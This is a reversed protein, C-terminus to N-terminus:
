FWKQNLAYGGDNDWGSTDGNRGRFVYGMKVHVAANVPSVPRVAVKGDESKGEIGFGDPFLRRSLNYVLEFGMDMGCGTCVIGLHKGMKRGLIEAVIWTVDSIAGDKVIAVSIERSMGSASTHRLITTITDGPKVWELMDKIRQQRVMEKGAKQTVKLLECEQHYHPYSTSFVTGEPTRMYSTTM